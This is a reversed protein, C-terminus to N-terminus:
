TTKDISPLAFPMNSGSLNSPNSNNNAITSNQNGDGKSIGSDNLSKKNSSGPGFKAHEFIRPSIPMSSVKQQSYQNLLSTRMGVKPLKM